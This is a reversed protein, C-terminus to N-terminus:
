SGKNARIQLVRAISVPLKLGHAVFIPLRIMLVDVRIRLWKGWTLSCIRTSTGCSRGRCVSTRVIRASLDNFLFFNDARIRRRHAVPVDVRIRLWQRKLVKSVSLSVFIV